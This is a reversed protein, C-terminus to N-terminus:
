HRALRVANGDNTKLDIHALDRHYQIALGTKDDRIPAAEWDCAGLKM